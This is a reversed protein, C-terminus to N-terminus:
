KITTFFLIIRDLGRHEGRGFKLFRGAPFASATAAKQPVEIPRRGIAEM